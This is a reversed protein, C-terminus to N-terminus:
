NQRITTTPATIKHKCYNTIKNKAFVTSHICSTGLSLFIAIVLFREKSIERSLCIFLLSSDYPWAVQTAEHAKVQLIHIFFNFNICFRPVVHHAFSSTVTDIAHNSIFRASTPPLTRNNRFSGCCRLHGLIHPRDGHCRVELREGDTVDYNDRDEIVAFKGTAYHNFVTCDARSTATRNGPRDFRVCHRWCSAM